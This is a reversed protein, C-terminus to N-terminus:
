RAEIVLKGEPGNVTVRAFIHLPLLGDAAANIRDDVVVAPVDTL